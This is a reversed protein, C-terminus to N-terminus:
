ELIDGAKKKSVWRTQRQWKGAPRAKGTLALSIKQQDVGIEGSASGKFNNYVQKFEIMNPAPVSSLRKQQYM